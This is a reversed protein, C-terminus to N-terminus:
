VKFDVREVLMKQIQEPHDIGKLIFLPVSKQGILELNGIGLLKELWNQKLSIGSVSQWEVEKLKHGDGSFLIASQVTIQYEENINLGYWTRYGNWLVEPESEPRIEPELNVIETILGNEPLSSEEVTIEEDERYGEQCSEPEHNSEVIREPEVAKEDKEFDAGANDLLDQLAKESERDDKAEVLPEPEGSVRFEIVKEKQPEAKTIQRPPEDYKFHFGDMCNEIVVPKILGKGLHSEAQSRHSGVNLGEQHIFEVSNKGFVSNINSEAIKELGKSGNLKEESCIVTNGAEDLPDDKIDSRPRSRETEEVESLLNGCSNCTNIGQEFHSGCEQCYPM